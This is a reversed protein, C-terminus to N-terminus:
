HSVRIQRIAQAVRPDDETVSQPLDLEPKVDFPLWPESPNSLHQPKEVPVVRLGPLSNVGKLAASVCGVLRSEIVEITPSYRRLGYCM